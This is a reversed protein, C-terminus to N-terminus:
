RRGKLGRLSGTQAAPAPQEQPVQYGQIVQQTAQEHRAMIAAALDDPVQEIVEFLTRHQNRKRPRTEPEIWVRSIVGHPPRSFSASLTNVYKSWDEVSTPALKLYAIDASQFHAPDDFLELDFDRSGRKATYFGAPILALRRRNQCMKGRGTRASGWVNHPCARCTDSQPKFYEPDIQMSEHPAMEDVSRGFAYCLPPQPDNADYPASSLTNEYLTNEMVADLVIVAMQNGPMQEEGFSLQGGKTSIFTGGVLKEQEAYQKAQDAWAKDYNTLETGTM